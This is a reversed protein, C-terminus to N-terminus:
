KRSTRYATIILLKAKLIKFVLVLDHRKSLEYNARYVEGDEAAEQLEAYRLYESGQKLFRIVEAETTPRSQIQRKAHNTFVIERGPNKLKEKLRDIEQEVGM